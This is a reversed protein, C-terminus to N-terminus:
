SRDLFSRSAAKSGPKESAAAAAEAKFGTRAAPTCCGCGIRHAGGSVPSSPGTSVGGVGLAAVSLQRPALEGCHPCECPDAFRAMPRFEEFSGCRECEYPYFPM